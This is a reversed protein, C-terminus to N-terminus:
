KEIAKSDPLTTNQRVRNLLLDIPDTGARGDRLGSVSVYGPASVNISSGIFRAVRIRAEGQENTYITQGEAFWQGHPTAVTAHVVPQFSESDRVRVPVM